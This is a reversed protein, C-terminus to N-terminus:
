KTVFTEFRKLEAKGKETLLYVGRDLREFWGYHNRYLISTTKDGTGMARLKRTSLPGHRELHRAILIANEKYSTLIGTRSSGGTNHDGSRGLFENYLGKSKKLNRKPKYEKPDFAISARAGRKGFTVLILGLGLMKLIKVIGRWHSSRKRSPEPIAIYVLSTMSLRDVAQTLLKINAGTKLEIIVLQDDKIAAIDCNKVESKVVYELQELLDKVPLYLDTERVTSKPM